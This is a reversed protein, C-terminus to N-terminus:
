ERKKLYIGYPDLQRLTLIEIQSPEKTIKLDKSVKIDWGTNKKVDEVKVGPHLCELVMEGTDEDFGMIALDTIVKTPGYGGLMLKQREEKGALFGPSTIFDVREPFRRIDHPTIVVFKKALSAIDCGGGSGPLRVKPNEYNGIVTSNINGHRDIQAGGLFGVDIRGAQLYISFVEFMSCVSLSGSVLCPDGISLPLRSPNAGIVGAEYIMILNPAHIRKALNAALNPLGIGVFVVEHDRLERAAAITMLESKTYELNNQKM